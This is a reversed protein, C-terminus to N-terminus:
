DNQIIQLDYKKDRNYSLLAFGPYDIIPKIQRNVMFSM